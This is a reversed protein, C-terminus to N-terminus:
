GGTIGSARDIAHDAGACAGTDCDKETKGVPRRVTLVAADRTPVMVTAPASLASGPAADDAPRAEREADLESQMGRLNQNATALKERLDKITAQADRLMGETRVRTARETALAAEAVRMSREAGDKTAMASQAAAVATEREHHVQRLRPRLDQIVGQAQALQQEAYDRAATQSRITQRAAKLPDNSSSPEAGDLGLNRRMKTEADDTTPARPDPSQTEM